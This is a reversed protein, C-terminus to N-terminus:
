RGGRAKTPLALAGLGAVWAGIPMDEDRYGDLQLAFTLGRLAGDRRRHGGRPAHGLATLPERPFGTLPELLRATM